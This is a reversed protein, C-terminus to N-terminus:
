LCKRFVHIDSADTHMHFRLMDHLIIRDPSQLLQILETLGMNHVSLLPPLFSFLYMVCVMYEVSLFPDNVGVVEVGGKQVAAKM